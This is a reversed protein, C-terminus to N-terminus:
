ILAEDGFGEVSDEQRAQFYQRLKERLETPVDERFEYVGDKNEQLWGSIDGFTQLAHPQLESPLGQRFKRSGHWYHLCLGPVFGVEYSYCRPREKLRTIPFKDPSVGLGLCLRGFWEDGGNLVATDPLETVIGLTSAWAFGWCVIGPKYENVMCNVVAGPLPTFPVYSPDLDQAFSFLQVVKYRDLARETAAVWDPRVLAVDADVWAFKSGPPLTRMGINILNEKHFMVDTGRVCCRHVRPRALRVLCQGPYSLEVTVVRVGPYALFRDVAEVFLRERTAYNGPNEYPIIVYIM